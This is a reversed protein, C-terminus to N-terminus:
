KVIICRGNSIYFGRAPSIRASVKRGSLDYLNRDYSESVDDPLSSIYTTEGFEDTFASQLKVGAYSAPPTIYATFANLIASSGSGRKLGGASNVIGYLGDMSFPAEFNSTMQWDSFSSGDPSAALGYGKAPTITVPSPAPLDINTWTPDAVQEGLYLIYPEFAKIKGNAVKEFFLTFGDHQNYTVASLQAVWDNTSQRGTLAQVNTEFPLAITSYGQLFTRHLTVTRYKEPLYVPTAPELVLAVKRFVAIYKKSSPASEDESDYTFDQILYNAEQSIYEADSLQLKWGVFEYDDAAVAKFYINTKPASATTPGLTKNVSTTTANDFSEFSVAATGGETAEVEAHAYYKTQTTASVQITIAENIGNPDSITITGSHEGIVNNAYRVTITETGMIDGGTSTVPNPTVTFNPDSSTLTVGYGANCHSLTFTENVSNGKMITGFDINDTSATLYRRETITINRFYGGFNGSYCLRVYRVTADEIPIDAHGSGSDSDWISSWQNGDTSVLVSWSLGTAGSAQKEYDFSIKDPIGEFNIEALKDNYNLGGGGDGLRIGDSDWAYSGSISRVLTSHNNSTITLPLHNQAETVNVEFSEEHAHWDENGEQSVTFVVTGEGDYFVLKGNVVNGLLSNSSSISYETETNTSSFFDSYSHNKYANTVNWNFAPTGKDAGSGTVKFTAVTTSGLNLTVTASKDGVSQPHFTIPINITGTAASAEVTGVSFTGNETGNDMACTGTLYQPYSTNHYTVNNIDITTTKGYKLSGMDYANSTTYPFNMLLTARTVKVNRSYKYLTGQAKFRIHTVDPSIDYSFSKYSTTLSSSIYEDIGWSNGGDTSMQVHIGGTAATGKKAEFSIKAGPGSLSFSEGASNTGLREEASKDLVYSTTQALMVESWAFASFIIFLIYLLKQKM